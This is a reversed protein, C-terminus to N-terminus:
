KPIILTKLEPTEYDAIEGCESGNSPPPIEWSKYSLIRTTEDFATIALTVNLPKVLVQTKGTEIDKVLIEGGNDGSPGPGCIQPSSPNNFTYVVKSNNDFILNSTALPIVPGGAPNIIYTSYVMSSGSGCDTPNGWNLIILKDNSSWALPFHVLPCGGAQAKSVLLDSISFKADQPYTYIQKTSNIKLDKVFINYKWDCPGGNNNYNNVNGICDSIESYVVKDKKHSLISTTIIFGPQPTLSIETEKRLLYDPVNTFKATTVLYANNDPITQEVKKNATFFYVGAAILIVLVIINFLFRKIM